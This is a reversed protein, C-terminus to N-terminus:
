IQQVDVDSKLLVATNSFAIVATFKTVGLAAAQCWSKNLLGM